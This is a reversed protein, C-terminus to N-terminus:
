KNLYYERFGMDGHKGEIPGLTHIGIGEVDHHRKLVSATNCQAAM